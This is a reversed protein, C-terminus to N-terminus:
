LATGPAYPRLLEVTQLYLRSFTAWTGERGQLTHSLDKEIDSVARYYDQRELPAQRSLSAFTSYTRLLPPLMYLALLNQLVPRDLALFKRFVLARLYRRIEEEVWAPLHATLADVQSRRGTWGTRSLTVVEDNKIAETMSWAEEVSAAERSAVLICLCLVRADFMETSRDIFDAVALDVQLPRGETVARCAGWVAASLVREPRDHALGDRVTEELELYEAWSLEREGELTLPSFGVRRAPVKRLLGELDARHAELPRGHNRHAATCYFSLGVYTDEPTEVVLFPFQRCGHPKASAGMEGHIRCLNDADLYVCADNRRAMVVRREGVLTTELGTEQLVRLELESGRVRGRTALDVQVDWGQCSRGCQVCDYNQDPLFRM